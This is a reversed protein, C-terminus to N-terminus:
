VGKFLLVTSSRSLSYILKGWMEKVKEELQIHTPQYGAQDMEFDQQGSGDQAYENFDQKITVNVCQNLSLFFQDMYFNAYKDFEQHRLQKRIKDIAEQQDKIKEKSDAAGKKKANQNM